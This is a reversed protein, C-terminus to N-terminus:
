KYKRLIHQLLQLQVEQLRSEGFSLDWITRFFNARMWLTGTKIDPSYRTQISEKEIGREPMALYFTQKDPRSGPILQFDKKLQTLASEIGWLYLNQDQVFGLGKAVEVPGPVLDQRDKKFIETLTRTESKISYYPQAFNFFPTLRKRTAPYQLAMEWWDLKIDSAIERLQTLNKALLGGMMKSLKPQNLKFDSTFHLGSSTKLDQDPVRFLVDLIAFAYPSVMTTPAVAKKVKVIISPRRSKVKARPNIQISQDKLVLYFHGDKTFYSIENKRCYSREALSLSSSLIGVGRAEGNLFSAMNILSFRVGEIVLSEADEKLTFNLHSKRLRERLPSIYSDIAKM